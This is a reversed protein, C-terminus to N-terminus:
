VLRQAAVEPSYNGASQIDLNGGSTQVVIMQIYDGVNVRYVTALSQTTVDGTVPNQHSRAIITTANLRFYVDRYGATNSAWRIHGTIVYVGATNFTIRDNNIANDHMNDTDYREQNLNIGTLTNNAITQLTNSYVRCGINTLPVEVKNRDRWQELAQLRRMVGELNQDTM